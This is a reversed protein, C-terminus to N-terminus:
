HDRRTEGDPCRGSVFGELYSVSAEAPSGEGRGDRVGRERARAHLEEYAALEARLCDLASAVGDREARLLPDADDAPLGDFATQLLRVQRRTIEYEHENQIM